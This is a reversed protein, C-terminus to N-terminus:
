DDGPGFLTDKLEIGRARAIQAFFTLLFAVVATPTRLLIEGLDLYLPEGASWSLLADGLIISFFVIAGVIAADIVHEPRIKDSMPTIVCERYRHIRDSDTSDPNSLERTAGAM